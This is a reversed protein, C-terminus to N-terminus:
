WTEVSSKSWAAAPRVAGDGGHAALRRQVVERGTQARVPTARPRQREGLAVGSGGPRAAAPVLQAAAEGARAGGSARSRAAAM